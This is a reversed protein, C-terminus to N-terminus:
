KARAAEEQAFFAHQLADHASIRRGQSIRLMQLLLDLAAPDIGEFLAPYTPQYEPLVFTQCYQLEQSEPWTEPTPTGMIRLIALAIELQGDGDFLMRGLLMEAFVCGTGWVDFAPSFAGSGLLYDLPVYQYTCGLPSDSDGEIRRCVGFDILKIENSDTVLINSPKVDRHVWGQAHVYELGELIGRIYTRVLSRPLLGSRIIRHLDRGGYELVIISDPFAQLSDILRIIRPHKLAKLAATERAVEDPDSCEKLAVDENTEQDKCLWVVGSAGNNLVHSKQFRALRKAMRTVANLLKGINSTRRQDSFLSFTELSLLLCSRHLETNGAKPL